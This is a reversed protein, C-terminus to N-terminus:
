RLSNECKLYAQMDATKLINVLCGDDVDEASEHHQSIAGVVDEPLGWLSYLM